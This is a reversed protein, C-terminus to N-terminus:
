SGESSYSVDITVLDNLYMERLYDNKFDGISAIFSFRYVYPLTTITYDHGLSRSYNVFGYLKALVGPDSVVSGFSFSKESHALVRVGMTPGTYSSGLTIVRDTASTSNDLEVYWSYTASNLVYRSPNKLQISFTFELSGNPLTTVSSAPNQLAVDRQAKVVASYTNVSVMASLLFFLSFAVYLTVAFWHRRVKGGISM